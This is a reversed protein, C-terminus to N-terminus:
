LLENLKQFNQKMDDQSCRLDIDVKNQAFKNKIEERFIEINKHLDRIDNNQKNVLTKSSQVKDHTAKKHDEILREVQKLTKEQGLLSEDVRKQFSDNLEKYKGNDDKIGKIMDELKAVVDFKQLLM